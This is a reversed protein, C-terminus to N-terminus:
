FMSYLGWYGANSVGVQGSTGKPVSLQLSNPLAASLPKPDAVVSINANNLASWAVLANTADKWLHLNPHLM